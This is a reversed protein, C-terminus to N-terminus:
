SGREFERKTEALDRKAQDFQKDFEEKLIEEERWQEQVNEYVEYLNRFSKSAPKETANEDIWEKHKKEPDGQGLIDDFEGQM